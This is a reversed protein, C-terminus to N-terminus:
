AAMAQLSAPAHVSTAGEEGKNRVVVSALSTVSGAVGLVTAWHLPNLPTTSFIGQLGPLYITSALALWSVGMALLLSRDELLPVRQKSGYRRWSITQILQGAVLTAFTMTQAVPLSMGTALSGAFVGLAGLGLIVGRTVVTHYLPADVVDSHRQENGIGTPDTALVMAPVADTLLNMLLIQLPILPIPLGVVVATATVLVEALNGTLLCGIAKRINGIIKRGEKIGDVISHFHDEMLVIGATDKTIDTGQVGMAIGVDAKRVAPADNVGDGTMAVVDGNSQYAEVIRLKHEPSVRAFISTTPVLAALEQPSLRTLEEGTIIRDGEHYIGLQKGIARATIPHDGTIMVPKIGLARAEQISHAVDDKPPDIMGMLGVYILGDETVTEPTEETRLPRYAFGLVRLALEAMRVNEQLVRNRIEDTM